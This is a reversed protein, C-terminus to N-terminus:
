RGAGAEKVTPGQAPCRTISMGGVCDELVSKWAVEIVSGGAEQCAVLVM